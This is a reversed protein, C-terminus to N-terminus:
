RHSFEIAEAVCAAVSERGHALKIGYHDLIKGCFLRSNAPRPALTPYEATSIPEVYASARRAAQERRLDRMRLWAM